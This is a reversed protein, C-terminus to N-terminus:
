NLQQNVFPDFPRTDHFNAMYAIKGNQLRFYNAVNAEIPVGSANAASIHSVVTAENDNIVVHQPYNQFKSYGREIGAIAGRMTEIGEIHGALQEDVVVNDDFLTLWTDWDGANASEYYKDIVERTNM